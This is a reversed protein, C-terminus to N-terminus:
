WDYSDEKGQNKVTQNNKLSQEEQQQLLQLIQQLAKDDANQQNTQNDQEISSPDKQDTTQQDQNQQDQNQQDQNQQDQNQQDQNQQNQNQQDQNQQDQNQQNQNQQDQNQQDQNQQDQNQQDQNQDDQNQQDQNQQDQEKMDEILKKLFEYNFKVEVDSPYAKMGLLYQELGQQYLTMQQQPDQTGSGQRYLANGLVTYCDKSLKYQEVAGEYNGMAYEVLGLNHHAISNKPEIGMAKSFKEKATEYDQNEYYKNGQGIALDVASSWHLTGVLMLLTLVLTVIGSLFFLQKM